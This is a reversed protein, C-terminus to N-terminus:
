EIMQFTLEELIDTAKTAAAVPASEFGTKIFTVLTSESTSSPANTGGLFVPDLQTLFQRM